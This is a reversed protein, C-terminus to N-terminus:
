RAAGAQPRALSKGSRDAEYWALVSAESPVQGGSLLLRVTRMVQPRAVVGIRAGKSQKSLLKTLTARVRETADGPSEGEPPCVSDPDERWQKAARPYRQELESHLLGEWLGAAPEKLGDLAVVKAEVREALLRATGVGCEDPSCYVTQVVRDHWADFSAESAERGQQSLPIDSAGQVRGSLDWESAGAQVTLIMVRTNDNMPTGARDVRM